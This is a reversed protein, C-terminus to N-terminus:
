EPPALTAEAENSPASEVLEGNIRAVTRVTYRYVAGPALPEDSFTPGTVPAVTLPELPPLEVPRQRYIAYGVIAEPAPFPIAVFELRVGTPTAFAQLVPPLPPEVKKRAPRNSPRSVAGPRNIALVQYQYSTGTRVTPDNVFFRNGSRRVDPLYALDIARILQWTDPCAPCDQEPPLMERRYLRFGALDRLPPGTEEKTPVSWSLRFEEGRQVVALDVVPAPVLAEPPRLVGKRGCGAIVLMLLLFWMLKNMNKGSPQPNKPLTLAGL